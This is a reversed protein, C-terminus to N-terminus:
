DKIFSFLIDHILIIYGFSTEFINNEIEFNLKIFMTVTVCNKWKWILLDTPIVSVPIKLVTHFYNIICRWNLGILTTSERAQVGHFFEVLIDLSCLCNM